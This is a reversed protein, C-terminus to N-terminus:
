TSLNVFDLYMTQEELEMRNNLKNSPTQLYGKYKNQCQVYIKDM